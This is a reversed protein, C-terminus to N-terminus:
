NSCLPSVWCWSCSSLDDKFSLLVVTCHCKCTSSQCTNRQPSDDVTGPDNGDEVARREQPVVRGTGWIQCKLSNGLIYVAKKTSSQPLYGFQHTWTTHWVRGPPHRVSKLGRPSWGALSRQRIKRPLISSHIAMELLGSRWPIKGVWPDSGPILGLDGADGANAPPNKVVSGRPLM